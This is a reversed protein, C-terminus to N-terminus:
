RARVASPGGPEIPLAARDDQAVAPLEIRVSLGGQALPTARVLGDHAEVIRRVIALGLGAGGAALSRSQDARFFPTFLEAALDAPVVPGTNTVEVFAHGDVGGTAVALEGGVHNYTVANDLLNGIARELLVASGTVAAAALTTRVDVGAAQAAAAIDEVSADTLEALDVRGDPELPQEARALTLLGDILRESRDTARAVVAATARLEGADAAPNELVATVAARVTALPTRLEQSANDAFRRQQEVGDEVRDLMGDFTDALAKLEDRPGDLGIREHLRGAAVRRSTAAIQAVPRLARGALLWGGVISATLAGGPAPVPPRLLRDQEAERANRAARELLAGERGGLQPDLLFPQAPSDPFDRRLQPRVLREFRQARDREYSTLSDGVAVYSAGVLVGGTVLLAGAYWATLRVRVTPRLTM